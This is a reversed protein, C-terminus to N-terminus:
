EVTLYKGQVIGNKEVLIGEGHWTDPEVYKWYRCGMEPVGLFRTFTDWVEQPRLEPLKPNRRNLITYYIEQINTEEVIMNEPPWEYPLADIGYPDSKYRAFYGLCFAGIILIAILGHNLKKV